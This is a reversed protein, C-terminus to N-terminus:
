MVELTWYNGHDILESTKSEVLTLNWYTDMDTLYIAGGINVPIDIRGNGDTYYDKGNFRVVRIFEQYTEWLQKVIDKWSTCCCDTKKIM